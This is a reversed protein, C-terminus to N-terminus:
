AKQEFSMDTAYVSQIFGQCVNKKKKKAIFENNEWLASALRESSMQFGQLTITKEACSIRLETLKIYIHM